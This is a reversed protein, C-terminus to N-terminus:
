FDKISQSEFYQGFDGKRLFETFGVKEDLKKLDLIVGDQGPDFYIVTGLGLFEVLEHSDVM